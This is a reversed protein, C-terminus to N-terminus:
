DERVVSQVLEVDSDKLKNYSFKFPLYWGKQLLNLLILLIHKERPTNASVSTMYSARFSFLAIM